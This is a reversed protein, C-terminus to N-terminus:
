ILGWRRRFYWEASLLTLVLAPLPFHAGLPTRKEEVYRSERKEAAALIEQLLDEKPPLFKGGTSQAIKRLQGPDPLGDREGASESVEVSEEASGGPTEVRLKYTGAMEPIFSGSYEGPRGSTTFEAGIKLGKPDFLSFQVAGRGEPAAEGSRLRVRVEGRQGKRIEEEPLLIQIPDLGPDRTLWRVTREVFQHYARQGRGKEVMGMRWKWSYDTALVLVRGQGYKGVSLVPSPAGDGSELLTTASTKVQVRNIGDLAPMEKWLSLNEKEASELRTIPHERGSRTLKVKRPTEREYGGKGAVSVPLVEELSTGSYKGGDILNPGGILALGGGANVFERVKELYASKVYLHFPFDDLILLDFQSLEKSFLTDVPFPILSQEQLPVNLVDTPTRLIVFSLLDISPDSKFAMRMYRYNLSPHGSIMLIRIKDKAVRLSFPFSNNLASSEGAQPPLSLSLHHPGTEELTFSFSLPIEAPDGPIRISRATLLRQGDRLSIPLTLRRFGHSKLVAEIRVERGRFAVAPAKLRDIWIDRYDGPDGLPITFLPLPSSRKGEWKVRGDSLLIPLVNRSPLKEVALALDGRGGAAKLRRLDGAELPRSSEGLAYIQVEFRESLSKLLPREGDLLLARAEELRTKGGKGPLGMTSSADVFLALAPSSKREVKQTFAPDLFCGILLLLAGLRLASLWLSRSPGVRKRLPPYLLVLGLVGLGLLGLILWAPLFPSLTIDKWTM